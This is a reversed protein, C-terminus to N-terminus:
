LIQQTQLIKAYLVMVNSNDCCGNELKLFSHAHVEITKNLWCFYNEHTNAKSLMLTPLQHFFHLDFM